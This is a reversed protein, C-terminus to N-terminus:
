CCVDNGFSHNASDGVALGDFTPCSDAIQLELNTTSLFQTPGNPCMPFIRLPRRTNKARFGCHWPAGVLMNYATM